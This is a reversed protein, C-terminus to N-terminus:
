GTTSSPYREPTWVSRSWSRKKSFESVTIIKRARKVVVGFMSRAYMHAVRGPCAEPHLYYILDHVTVVALRPNVIPMNFSPYHFLEAGTSKMKFPLLLQEKLSYVPINFSPMYLEVNDLGNLAEWAGEGCVAGISIGKGLGSLSIILNQIYRGIGTYGIMRADIAIRLFFRM